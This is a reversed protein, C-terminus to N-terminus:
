QMSDLIAGFASRIRLADATLAGQPLPNREEPDAALDYFTGDDYRKWARDQVFRRHEFNNWGPAYHCFVWSRVTDARGLLQPYFSLGDLPLDPPPSVRAADLLTPLFDTLDVLNDNVQGPRITGPWNAILPVHTGAATTFGKNGQIKRTGMRSVVDRDTGNDGVFLILTNERLGLSDLQQVLRGVLKDMYAVNDAFYAALNTRDDPDFGAYDPHDPTPQFPDHTLVM